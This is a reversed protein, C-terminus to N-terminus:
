EMPKITYYDITPHPIDMYPSKQHMDRQFRQCKIWILRNFLM